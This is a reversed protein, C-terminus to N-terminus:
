NKNSATIREKIPPIMPRRSIKKSVIEKAPPISKSMESLQFLTIIPNIIELTIPNIEPIAGAIEADLNFGTSAIRALYDFLFRENKCNFNL